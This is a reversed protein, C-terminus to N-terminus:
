TAELYVCVNRLYCTSCAQASDTVEDSYFCSDGSILARQSYRSNCAIVQLKCNSYGRSTISLEDLLSLLLCISDFAFLTTILQNFNTHKSVLSSVVYIATFNLILGTIALVCRVM